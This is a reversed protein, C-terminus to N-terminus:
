LDRRKFADDGMYESIDDRIVAQIDNALRFGGLMFWVEDNDRSLSVNWIRVIEDYKHAKESSSM